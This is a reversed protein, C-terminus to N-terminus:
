NFHKVVEILVNKFEHVLEDSYMGLKGKQKEHDILLIFFLVDEEKSREDYHPKQGLEIELSLMFRSCKSDDFVTFGRETKKYFNHIVTKIEESRLIQANIKKLQKLLDEFESM